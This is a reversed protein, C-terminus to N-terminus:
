LNENVPSGEPGLIFVECEANRIRNLGGEEFALPITKNMSFPSFFKMKRIAEFQISHGKCLGRDIEKAKIIWKTSAASALTKSFYEADVLIQNDGILGQGNEFACNSRPPGLRHALPLLWQQLVANFEIEGNVSRVM